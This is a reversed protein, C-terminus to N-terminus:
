AEARDRFRQLTRPLEQDAFLRQMEEPIPLSTVLESEYYARTEGGDTPEIRWVGENKLLTPSEVLQWRIEPEGFAYRVTFQTKVDMGGVKVEVHFTAVAGASDRERVEVRKVEPLFKPYDEFALVIARFEEPSVFSEISTSSKPM